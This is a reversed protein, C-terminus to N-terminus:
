YVITYKLVFEPHQNGWLFWRFRSPVTLTFRNTCRRAYIKLIVGNFILFLLLSFFKRDPIKGAGVPFFQWPM